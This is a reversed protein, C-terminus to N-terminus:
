IWRLVRHPTDMWVRRRSTAPAVRTRRPPGELYRPSQATQTALDRPSIAMLTHVRVSAYPYGWWCVPWTVTMFGVDGEIDGM